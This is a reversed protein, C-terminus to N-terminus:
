TQSSSSDIGLSSYMFLKASEYHILSICFIFYSSQLIQLYKSPNGSFQVADGLVHGVRPKSQAGKSGGALATAGELKLM